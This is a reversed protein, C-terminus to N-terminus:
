ETNQHTKYKPDSVGQLPKRHQVIHLWPSEPTDSCVSRRVFSELVVQAGNDYLHPVLTALPYIGM